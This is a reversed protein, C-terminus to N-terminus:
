DGGSSEAESSSQGRVLTRAADFAGRIRVTDFEDLRRILDAAAEADFETREDEPVREMGRGIPTIFDDPM